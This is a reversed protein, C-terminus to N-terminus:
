LHLDESVIIEFGQKDMDEKETVSNKYLKACHDTWITVLANIAGNFNLYPYTIDGWM